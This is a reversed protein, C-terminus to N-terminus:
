RWGELIPSTYDGDRDKAAQLAAYTMTAGFDGDASRPAPKGAITEYEGYLRRQARIVPEGRSGHRLRYYTDHFGSTSHFAHAAELGTLLMYEFTGNGIQTEEPVPMDDPGTVTGAARRFENWPGHAKYRNPKEYYGLIVQCGSSDFAPHNLAPELAAASAAHINHASGITWYDHAGYVDYVLDGASRLVVYKRDAFLSGYQTNEPRSKKHPFARYRYLGTPLLSCGWGRAAERLVCYMNAVQPVTSAAFFRLQNDAPRWVGMVCRYHIHDPTTLMLKHSAGWGTDVNGDPIVCGRLGILRVPRRDKFHFSNREALFSLLTADVTFDPDGPMAFDRLHVYDPQQKNSLWQPAFGTDELRWYKSRKTIEDTRADSLYPVKALYAAGSGTDYIESEIVPANPDIRVCQLCDIEENELADFEEFVSTAIELEIDFLSGDDDAGAHTEVATSLGNVAPSTASNYGCGGLATTTFAIASKNFQRRNM